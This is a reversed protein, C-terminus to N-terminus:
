HSSNLRTNKRDEHLGAATLDRVYAMVPTQLRGQAQSLSIRAWPLTAPTVPLICADYRRLAMGSNSLVAAAAPSALDVPPEFAHIHLRGGAHSGVLAKVWQETCRTLLLACDLRERM